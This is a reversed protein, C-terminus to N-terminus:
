GPRCATLQDHSGYARPARVRVAFAQARQSSGSAVALLEGAKPEVRLDAASAAAIGGTGIIGWRVPRDRRDDPAPPVAVVPEGDGQAAGSM